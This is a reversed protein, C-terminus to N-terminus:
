QADQFDIYIIQETSVGAGYFLLLYASAYTLTVALWVLLASPIWKAYFRWLPTM